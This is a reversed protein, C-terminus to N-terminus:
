LWITQIAHVIINLGLAVQIIGLVAGLLQLLWGLKKLIQQAFLMALLNLVMVGLLMAAIMMKGTLDHQLAIFVILAAIGYPTVITPFALPTIAMGPMLVAQAGTPPKPPEGQNFIGTIAVHFLLIGGTLALVPISVGFNDLMKEGLLGALLLALSAFVIGRLAFKRVESVEAGFTMKAFPGIVKFPGLMLFLFTFIQSFPISRIGTAENAQVTEAVEQATLMGASCLVAAMSLLLRGTKIHKMCLTKAVTHM